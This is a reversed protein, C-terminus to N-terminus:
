QNTTVNCWDRGRHKCSTKGQTETEEIDRHNWNERDKYPYWHNSKPDM